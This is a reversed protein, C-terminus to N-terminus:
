ARYFKWFFMNERECAAASTSIKSPKSFEQELKQLALEVFFKLNSFDTKEQIKTQYYFVDAHWQISYFINM